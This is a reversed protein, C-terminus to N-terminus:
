KEIQLDILTFEDRVPKAKPLIYNSIHTLLKIRESPSLENQNIILYDLTDEYLIKLKEKITPPLVKAPGRKSKKGALRATESNFSM